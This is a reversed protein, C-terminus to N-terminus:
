LKVRLERPPLPVGGKDLTYWFAFPRLRTKGMRSRLFRQDDEDRLQFVYFHEAETLLRRDIGRPRQTASLMSIGLERGSTICARLYPPAINRNHTDFLEDTYVMTEGRDYIWQYVRDYELWDRHEPSPRYQLKDHKKGAAGLEEPTRCMKFGPLPEGNRKGEGMTSKPDIVVCYRFPQILRRALVTKGSGTPGIILGRETEQPIIEQINM